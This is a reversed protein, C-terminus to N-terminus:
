CIQDAAAREDEKITDFVATKIIPFKECFNIIKKRTNSGDLYDSPFINYNVVM